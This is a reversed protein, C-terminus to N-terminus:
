KGAAELLEASFKYHDKHDTIWKKEYGVMADLEAIIEIKSWGAKLRHFILYRTALRYKSWVPADNDGSCHGALDLYKNIEETRSCTDYKLSDVWPQWEWKTPRLEGAVKWWHVDLIARARAAIEADKHHSAWMLYSEPQLIRLAATAREREHFAPSGLSLILSILLVQEM